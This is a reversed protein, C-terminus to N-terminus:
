RHYGRHPAHKHLSDAIQDDMAKIALSLHIDLPNKEFKQFLLDRKIKLDERKKKAELYDMLGQVQSRFSSFEVLSRNPHRARSHSHRSATASLVAPPKVPDPVIRFESLNLGSSDELSKLIHHYQSVHYHNPWAPLNSIFSAFRGIAINWRSQDRM